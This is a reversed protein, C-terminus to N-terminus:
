KKQGFYLTEFKVKHQAFLDFWSSDRHEYKRFIGWCFMDVAQLGRLEFSHKHFIDLPVSPNLRGKLQEAIYHNFERIGISGKSKDLYLYVREKANELPIKDLVLRAVYNYLRDRKTRLPQYVKEKNITVSYLFFDISKMQSYFYKKVMFPTKSGKLEAPQKERKKSSKRIITKMVAKGIAKQNENGRTVLITITFFSSPKKNVFDFGLDGSEDLYLFWM